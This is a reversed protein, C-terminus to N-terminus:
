KAHPYFRADALSAIKPSVSVFIIQVVRSSHGANSDGKLYRDTGEEHQMFSLSVLSSVHQM